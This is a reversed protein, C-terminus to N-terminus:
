EKNKLTAIHTTVGIGVVCLIFIVATAKVLFMSIILGIWLFLIGRYKIKRPVGTKHNYNEIYSGFYKSRMIMSSLKPSSASFCGASLLVFPTTPLIPLFIGIAGVSIAILGIFLMIIRKLGM